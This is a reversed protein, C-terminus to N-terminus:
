FGHSRSKFRQTCRKARVGPLFPNGISLAKGEASPRPVSGFGGQGGDVAQGLLLLDAGGCSLASALHM